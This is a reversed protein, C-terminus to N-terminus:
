REEKRTKTCGDIIERIDEDTIKEFSNPRVGQLCVFCCETISFCRLSFSAIVDQPHPTLLKMLKLRSVSKKFKYGKVTFGAFLFGQTFVSM